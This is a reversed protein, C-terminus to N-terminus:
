SGLRGVGVGRGRLAFASAFGLAEAGVDVSVELDRVVLYVVFGCLCSLSVGRCRLAIRSSSMWAPGLTASWRPSFSFITM